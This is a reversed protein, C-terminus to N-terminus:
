SAAKGSFSKEQMASSIGAMAKQDNKEISDEFM